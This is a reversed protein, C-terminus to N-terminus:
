RILSEGIVLRLAYTTGLSYQGRTPDDMTRNRFIQLNEKVAFNNQGFALAIQM